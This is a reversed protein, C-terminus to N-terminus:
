WGWGQTEQEQEPEPVPAQEFAAPPVVRLEAIRGSEDDSLQVDSVLLEEDLGLYADRVVALDGPRWVGSDNKWGAVTYTIGRGQAWRMRSEFEARAKCDASDAEVDSVILIRRPSRVRPDRATAKPTAAQEGFWTDTGSTQGEVIYESFRDRDSFRGSGRLINKGLELTTGVRRRVANCIVLRGRADSVIRVGRIQAARELAEAITQGDEITFERLPKDAGAEDIVDIGYPAALRSAIKKLAQNTIRTDERSCDILDAARSRGTASITHSRSDYDPLVEDVYGTLVLERGVSVTCAAGPEVPRVPGSESWRETLTLEFSDAIQDLSRRVVAETWGQHRVTGIQLVVPERNSM